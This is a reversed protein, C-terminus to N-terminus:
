DGSPPGAIIKGGERKMTEVALKKTLPAADVDISVVWVLDTRRNDGSRPQRLAAGPPLAAISISDPLTGQNRFWDVAANATGVNDFRAWVVNSDSMVAHTLPM